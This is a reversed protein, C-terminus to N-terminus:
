RVISLVGYGVGALTLTAAALIAALAAYSWPSVEYAGELVDKRVIAIRAPDVALETTLQRYIQDSYMSAVYVTDYACRALDDPGLVPRGLLKTHRRAPNNDVFAIV